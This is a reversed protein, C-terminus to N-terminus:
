YAEMVICTSNDEYSFSSGTSRTCASTSDSVTTDTPQTKGWAVYICQRGSKTAPCDIMNLTMGAQNAQQFSERVDSRAKEAPACSSTYCTGGTSNAQSTATNNRLIDQYASLADANNNMRIKEALDRAVNMAQIRNFGESTAEVARLQLAVFGLVAISLLMLAVLVELLGVGQQTKIQM